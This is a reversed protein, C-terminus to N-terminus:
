VARYLPNSPDEKQRMNLFFIGWFASDGEGDLRLRETACFHSWSHVLMALNYIFYIYSIIALHREEELIIVRFWGGVCCFGGLPVFLSVVFHSWKNVQILGDPCDSGRWRFMALLSSGGSLTTVVGGGERRALVAVAALQSSGWLWTV